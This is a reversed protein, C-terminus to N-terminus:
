RDDTNLVQLSQPEVWLPMGRVFVREKVKGTVSNSFTLYFIIGLFIPRLERIQVEIMWDRMGKM